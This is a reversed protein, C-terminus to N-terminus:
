MGHQTFHLCDMTNGIANVASCCYSIGSTINSNNFTLTSKTEVSFMNSLNGIINHVELTIYDDAATQQQWHIISAPYSVVSCTITVTTSVPVETIDPSRTM